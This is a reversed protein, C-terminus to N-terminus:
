DLDVLHDCWPCLMTGCQQKWEHPVVTRKCRPCEDALFAAEELESLPALGDIAIPNQEAV